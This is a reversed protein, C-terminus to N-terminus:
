NESFNRVETLSGIMEEVREYSLFGKVVLHFAYDETNWLYLSVGFKEIVAVRTAAMDRIEFDAFDENVFLKTELTTQILTLNVDDNAWTTTVDKENIFQTLWESNQPLVSLTYLTEICEPAHETDEQAFFLEIVSDYARVFFNVIPQRVATISMSIGLTMLCALAIVAARKGVTNFYWYLKTKKQRRLLRDMDRKYKESYSISINADEEMRGCEEENVIRFAEQLKELGIHNQESM